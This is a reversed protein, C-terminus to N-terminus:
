VVIGCINISSNPLNNLIKETEIDTSRDFCYNHLSTREDEHGAIERVKNINVGMDFLSSIYTKRIKHSSKRDTNIDDCLKYLYNNISSATLRTSYSNVFIYGECHYSYKFNRKRIINLIERVENNIYVSRIGASSKVHDVIKFGKFVVNGDENLSYDKIEMRNINIYNDEIDSWKLAVLEGVRLGLNFNMIIALPTISWPKNNYRKIAANCIDKEDQLSFVQTENKPKQVKKFMKGSVHIRSFVNEDIIKADMAYEFCQRIIISMNYYQKKTMDYKKIIDHIWNDLQLYTLEELLVDVIPEKEYYKDWDNKIRKISSMSNTHKSKYVLWEPFLTRLSYINKNIYENDEKEAYFETVIKIISDYDKKAVLRRKNKKTEDPLTTKWRGDKDQFIKYKHKKLLREKEKEKMNNRVDDLNIIGQNIAFKLLENSTFDEIFVGEKFKRYSFRM